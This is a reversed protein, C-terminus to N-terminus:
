VTHQFTSVNSQKCINIYDLSHDEWHDHRTTLAPSYLLCFALSNIGKFLPAPSSEQSYRCLQSILDTLILPLWGQISMPLVSASASTDTNQDGSGFLCRMPFIGSEPFSQPCFSFLTDSSSIAPHCWRHLPCSSPCVEPSPSPCPPSAHQLGHPGLTPCSQASFLLLMTNTEVLCWCSDAMPKGMWAKTQNLSHQLSYPFCM